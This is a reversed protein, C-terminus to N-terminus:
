EQSTLYEEWDILALDFARKEVANPLALHFEDFMLHDKVVCYNMWVHKTEEHDKLYSRIKRSLFDDKNIM